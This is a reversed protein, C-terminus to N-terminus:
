GVKKKWLEISNELKDEMITEAKIHSLNFSNIKEVLDNNDKIVYLVFENTNDKHKYIDDIISTILDVQRKGESSILYVTTDHERIKKDTNYLQYKLGLEKMKNKFDKTEWTSEGEFHILARSPKEIIDYRINYNSEKISICIYEKESGPLINKYLHLDTFMSDDFTEIGLDNNIFRVITDSVAKECNGVDRRSIHNKFIYSQTVTFQKTSRLWDEYEKWNIGRLAETIVECMKKSEASKYIYPVPTGGKYIIGPKYMSNISQIKGSLTIFLKIEM